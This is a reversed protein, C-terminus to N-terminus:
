TKCRSEASTAEDSMSPSNSVRFPSCLFMCTNLQDSQHSIFPKDKNGGVM